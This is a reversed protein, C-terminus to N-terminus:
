HYSQTCHIQIQTGTPATVPSTNWLVVSPAAYGVGSMSQGPSVWICIGTGKIAIPLGWYSDGPFDHTLVFTFATDLNAMKTTWMNGDFYLTKGADSATTAPLGAAVWTNGNWYYLGIASVGTGTTNTNYVMMGTLNAVGTTLQMTNSTLSVRPLALGKTGNNTADTANLDLAAAANPASNGGIRVQAKVSAAGLGMLLLLFMLFLVKRM